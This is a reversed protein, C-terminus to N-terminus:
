QETYKKKTAEGGRIHREEKNKDFVAKVEAYLAPNEKKLKQSADKHITSKSIGFHKAAARVTCQNEVIYNGVLVSRDDKDKIM